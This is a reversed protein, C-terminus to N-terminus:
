SQISFMDHVVPNVKVEHLSFLKAAVLDSKGGVDEYWCQWARLEDLENGLADAKHKTQVDPDGPQGSVNCAGLALYSDGTWNSNVLGIVIFTASM